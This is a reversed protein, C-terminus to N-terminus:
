SAKRLPRSFILEPGHGNKEYIMERTVGSNPHVNSAIIVFRNGEASLFDHITFQGDRAGTSFRQYLEEPTDEAQVTGSPAIRGVIEKFIPANRWAAMLYNGNNM